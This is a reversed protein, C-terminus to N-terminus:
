LSKRRVFAFQQVSTCDGGWYVDHWVPYTFGAAIYVINQLEPYTM